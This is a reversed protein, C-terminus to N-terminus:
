PTGRVFHILMDASMYGERRDLIKTAREGEFEVLLTAPVGRVGWQRLVNYGVDSAIYTRHEIRLRTLEAQVRPHSWSWELRRCPWCFSPDTFTIVAVTRSPPEQGWTLQAAGFIILSLAILFLLEVSITRTHKM